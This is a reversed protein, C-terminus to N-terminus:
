QPPPQNHLLSPPLSGALVPSFQRIGAALPEAVPAYRRMMMNAILRQAYPNYMAATAGTAALGGAIYEPPVEEKGALAAAGLGAGLQIMHRFPTGSDPVTAGLVARGADSIDEGLATGRAVQSRPAYAATAAQFQSPQFRGPLEGPRAAAYEYRLQRAYAANAAQIEPAQAPSVRELWNRLVTQTDRLQWALQREDSTSGPNYLIDRAQKGLDSEADKFGQGTMIGTNPDVRQWLHQDLISNFQQTRDPHMTLANQQLRGLDQLVAPDLRGGAAPIAANYADSVKTAVENVAERGPGGADLTEGIPNLVWNAAGTNLQDVARARASGVMDGIIPVSGYGQEVRNVGRGFWGGGAGLLQGPTPRAGLDFMTREYGPNGPAPPRAMSPYAVRAGVGTGTTSAAGLLGGETAETALQRPSANPDGTLLASLSGGGINSALRPWYGATSGPMAYALLSPLVAEGLDRQPSSKPIQGGPSAARYAELNDQAVKEINSQLDQPWQADSFARQLARAGLAGGTNLTKEVGYAFDAVPNGPPGSVPQGTNPNVVANPNAAIAAAIAAQDADPQGPAPAPAANPAGKLITGITQNETDWPSSM